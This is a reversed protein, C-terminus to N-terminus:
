LSIFDRPGKETRTREGMESLDGSSASSPSHDGTISHWMEARLFYGPRSIYKRSHIMELVITTRFSAGGGGGAGPRGVAGHLLINPLEECTAIYVGIKSKQATAHYGAPHRHVTLSATCMKIFMKAKAVGLAMTLLKTQEEKLM